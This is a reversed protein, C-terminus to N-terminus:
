VRNTVTARAAEVIDAAQPISAQELHTPYPIPVERSCVRQVPADLQYFAQECIRAAIEASIGGSRWGEDVIVARRTKAVSAMITADDLPRLIRLDVVEADIGEQALTEAAELAKFLTGGYAFLSVDSGERRVAARTIDVAGADDALEDERNYYGAYERLSCCEVRM